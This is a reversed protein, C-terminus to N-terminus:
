WCCMNPSLLSIVISMRACQACRYHPHFYMRAAAKAGGEDEASVGTLLHAETENVCFIDPLLFFDSDLSAPAPAPNFISRTGPCRAAVTKKQQNFILYKVIKSVVGSRLIFM